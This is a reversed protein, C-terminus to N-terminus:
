SKKSFRIRWPAIIGERIIHKSIKSVGKRREEFVIPIEKIRAGAKYAFCKSEITYAYGASHIKSLDMRELVERRFCVFGATLDRIPVGTVLRAYMNGGWSLGRRWAEWQPVGGGRVYRSGIVVDYQWSEQLLDGVYVPNHSWDADMTTMTRVTPDGLLMRFAEIYASGLGKKQPRVHLSLNPIEKQLERVVASTGDPSSDDVVMVTLKPYLRFIRRVLSEILECENYTPIVVVDKM